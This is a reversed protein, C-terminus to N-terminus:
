VWKFTVDVDVEVDVDMNGEYCGVPLDLCKAIVRAYCELTMDCLPVGCVCRLDENLFQSTSQHHRLTLEYAPTYFAVSACLGWLENWSPPLNKAIQTRRYPVPVCLFAVVNM